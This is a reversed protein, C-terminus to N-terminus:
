ARRLRTRIEERRIDVAHLCAIDLPPTESDCRERNVKEDMPADTITFRAM